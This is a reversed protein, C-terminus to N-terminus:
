LETTRHGFPALFFHSLLSFRCFLLLLFLLMRLAHLYAINLLLLRLFSWLIIIFMVDSQRAAVQSCLLAIENPLYCLIGCYICKVFHQIPQHFFFSYKCWIWKRRERHIVHRSLVMTLLCASLSVLYKMQSVMVSRDCVVATACCFVCFVRWLNACENHLLIFDRTMSLYLCGRVLDFSVCSGSSVIFLIFYFWFICPWNSPKWGNAAM